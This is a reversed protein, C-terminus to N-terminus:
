TRYPLRTTSVDDVGSSPDPSNSQRAVEIMPSDQRLVSPARHGFVISVEGSYAQEIREGYKKPSMRALAWKRTDVRLRSREVHEHNLALYPTGGKNRREIWDNTGDDAIEFLEDFIHDAQVERAHTYSDYFYKYEPRLLWRYLTDRDPMSEDRCIGKLTEGQELRYCIEDVLAESYLTPRWPPRKAPPLPALASSQLPGEISDPM